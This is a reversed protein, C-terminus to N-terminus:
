RCQALGVSPQKEFSRCRGTRHEHVRQRVSTTISFDGTTRDITVTSVFINVMGLVPDFDGYHDVGILAHDNNVLLEYRPAGLPQEILLGDQLSLEIPPRGRNASWAEDTCVWTETAAISRSAPTVDQPHAASITSLLATSAVAAVGLRVRHTTLTM